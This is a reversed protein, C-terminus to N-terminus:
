ANPATTLAELEARFTRRAQERAEAEVPVGGLDVPGRRRLYEDGLTLRLIVDLLYISNAWSAPGPRESSGRIRAALGTVTAPRAWDGSALVEVLESWATIGLQALVETYPHCWELEAGREGSLLDPMGTRLAMTSLRDADAEMRGPALLRAVGEFEREAMEIVGALAALRRVTDETSGYGPEPKYGIDHNLAAFAHQLSTRVQIEVTFAPTDPAAAAWVDAPVSFHISQYGPVGAVEPERGRFLAETPALDALVGEVVRGLDVPLAVVIRAGVVDTIDLEPETYKFTGDPLRKMAKAVFSDVHKTRSEVTARVPATDGDRARDGEGAGTQRFWADVLTRLRPEVVTLRFQEAADRQGSAHARLKVAHAECRAEFRHLSKLAAAEDRAGEPDLVSAPVSPSKLSSRPPAPTTPSPPLLELDQVPRGALAGASLAGFSVYKRAQRVLFGDGQSGSGVYKMEQIHLTEPDEVRSLVYFDFGARRMGREASPKWSRRTLTQLDHSLAAMARGLRRELENASFLFTAINRDTLAV